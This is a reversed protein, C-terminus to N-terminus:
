SFDDDDDCAVLIEVESKTATNENLSRISNTFLVERERTPLLLSFKM